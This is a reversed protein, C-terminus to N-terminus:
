TVPKNSKQYIGDKVEEIRRGADGLGGPTTGLVRLCQHASPCKGPTQVRRRQCGIGCPSGRQGECQGRATGTGQWSRGWGRPLPPARLHPEETALPLGVGM